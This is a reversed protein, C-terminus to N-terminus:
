ADGEGAFVGREASEPEPYPSRLAWAEAEEIAARARARAEELGAEVMRGEELLLRQFCLIPDRARWAELEGAPMYSYDDHEAHGRMRYTEAVILTPGGGQRAREAAEGVAEYVALLDNGDVPTGAIGYAEARKLFDPQACQRALPTSYAWHNNELILLFPLRLAAAFNLGEHFDGM